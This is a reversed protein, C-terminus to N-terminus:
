EIMQSSILHYMNKATFLRVRVVSLYSFEGM